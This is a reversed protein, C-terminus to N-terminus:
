QLKTTTCYLRDHNTRTATREKMYYTATVTSRFIFEKNQWTEEDRDIKIFKFQESTARRATGMALCRLEPWCIVLLAVCSWCEFKMGLISPGGAGGIPGGGELEVHAVNLWDCKWWFFFLAFMKKLEKAFIALFIYQWRRLTEFGIKSTSFVICRLVLIPPTGGNKDSSSLPFIYQYSLRSGAKRQFQKIM